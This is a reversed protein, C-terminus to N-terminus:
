IDDRMAQKEREILKANGEADKKARQLAERCRGVEEEKERM